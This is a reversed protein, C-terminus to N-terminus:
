SPEATFDTNEPRPAVEISIRKGQAAEVTVEAPAGTKELARALHVAEHTARDVHSYDAVHEGDRSLVWVGQHPSIVFQVPDPM